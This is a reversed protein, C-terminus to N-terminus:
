GFFTFTFSQISCHLFYISFLFPSGLCVSVFRWRIHGDPTMRVSGRVKSENGNGGRSKGVFYIVPFQSISSAAATGILSEGASTPPPTTPPPSSLPSVTPARSPSGPVRYRVDGIKTISLNLEILRTAEQFEADEFFSKNYASASYQNRYQIILRLGVFPFFFASM